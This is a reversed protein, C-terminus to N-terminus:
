VRIGTVLGPFRRSPPGASSPCGPVCVPGRFLRLLSVLAFLAAALLPWWGSAPPGPRLRPASSCRAAVPGVKLGRASQRRRRPAPGACRRRLVPGRARAPPRLPGGSRPSALAPLPGFPRCLRRAGPQPRLASAWPGSCGRCTAAAAASAASAAAAAAALPPGPPLPPPPGLLRARHLPLPPLARRERLAPLPFFHGSPRPQRGAVPIDKVIPSHVHRGPLAGVPAEWRGRRRGPRRSGPRPRPGARANHTRAHTGARPPRKAWHAHTGSPGSGLARAHGAFGESLTSASGGCGCPGPVPVPSTAAKTRRGRRLPRSPM